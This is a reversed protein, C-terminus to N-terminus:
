VEFYKYMWQVSVIKVKLLYFYSRGQKHTYLVAPRPLAPRTRPHELDRDASSSADPYIFLPFCSGPGPGAEGSVPAAHISVFYLEEDQWLYWMSPRNTFTKYVLLVHRCAEWNWCPFLMNFCSGSTQFSFARTLKILLSSPVKEFYQMNM